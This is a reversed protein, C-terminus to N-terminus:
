KKQKGQGSYKSQRSNCIIDTGGSGPRTEAALMTISGGSVKELEEDDVPTIKKEMTEINEKDDM